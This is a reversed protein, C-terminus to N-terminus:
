QVYSEMVKKTCAITLFLLRSNGPRTGKGSGMEPSSNRDRRLTVTLFISEVKDSSIVPSSNVQITHQFWKSRYLPGM